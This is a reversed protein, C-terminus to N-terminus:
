TPVPVLDAQAVSAEVQACAMFRASVLGSHTDYVRLALVVGTTGYHAAAGCVDVCIM